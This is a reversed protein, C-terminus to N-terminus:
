RPHGEEESPKVMWYMKHRGGVSWCKHSVEELVSPGMACTDGMLFKDLHLIGKTKPELRIRLM